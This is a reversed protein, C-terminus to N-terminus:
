LGSIGMKNISNGSHSHTEAMNVTRHKHAGPEDFYDVLTTIESKEDSKQKFIFVIKM